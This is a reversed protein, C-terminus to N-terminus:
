HKLLAEVRGRSLGFLTSTVVSLVKFDASDALADSVSQIDTTARVVAPGHKDGQLAHGATDLHARLTRDAQTLGDLAHVVERLAARRSVRDTVQWRSPDIAEPVADVQARSPRGGPFRRGGGQVMLHDRVIPWRSEAVTFDIQGDAALAARVGTCALARDLERTFAAADLPADGFSVSVPQKGLGAPHFVLTEAGGSRWQEVDLARMRFTCVADAAPHVVLQADLVGGALAARDRWLAGFKAILAAAGDGSREAGSLAMGITRKLGRLQGAATEVFVLARQAVTVDANLQAHRATFAVSVDPFRPAVATIGSEPLHAISASTLAAAQKTRAGRQTRSAVHADDRRSVLRGRVPPTSGMKM